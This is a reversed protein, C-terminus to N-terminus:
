GAAAPVARARIMNALPKAGCREALEAFEVLADLPKEVPAWYGFLARYYFELALRTNQSERLTRAENLFFAASEASFSELHTVRDEWSGAALVDLEHLRPWHMDAWKDTTTNCRLTALLAKAEGRVDCLRVYARNQAFHVSAWEDAVSSPFGQLAALDAAAVSPDHEDYGFYRGSVEELKLSLALHADATSAMLEAAREVTMLPTEDVWHTHASPNIKCGSLAVDRLIANRLTGSWLEVSGTDAWTRIYYRVEGTFWDFRFALVDAAPASLVPVCDVPLFRTPVFKHEDAGTIAVSAAVPRCFEGPGRETSCGSEYWGRLESSPVLGLKLLSELM